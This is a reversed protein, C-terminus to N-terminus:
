PTRQGSRRPSKYYGGSKTGGSGTGTSKPAPDSPGYGDSDLPKKFTSRRGSDGLSSSLSNHIGFSAHSVGPSGGGIPYAGATTAVAVVSLTAAGVIFGFLAAGAIFGLLTTGIILRYRM